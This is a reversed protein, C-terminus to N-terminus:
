PVRIALSGLVGLGLGLLFIVAEIVNLIKGSKRSLYLLAYPILDVGYRAGYQYSGFTRHLLLLFLHALAFLLVLGQDFKIRRRIIDQVGWCLLLLLVPNALFLSFGFRRLHLEGATWEFPLAFIFVSINKWVHALSFQTGGQFSYEPLYSYGFELPSGFRIFNYTGYIVAISLGALFGPLLSPFTKSLSEGEAKRRYFYILILLPGYLANFPRCGVALAYLTISLTPRNRDMSDAAAVILLFALVQAQYWVAGSFVLPLMSSAFLLMFTWFAATFPSFGRRRLMSFAIILTMLAYLKMLVGDPVGEGFIFSLLFLPISPVPPFCVYYRGQYIALELHPVDADLYTQGKRWAMAQLTFSNYPSPKFLPYGLQWQIISVLLFFALLLGILAAINRKEPRMYGAGKRILLCIIPIRKGCNASRRM